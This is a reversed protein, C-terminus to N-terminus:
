TVAMVVLASCTSARRWRALTDDVLGDAALALFSLRVTARVAQDAKAAPSESRGEKMALLILKFFFFFFICLRIARSGNCSPISTVCSLATMLREPTGDARINATPGTVRGANQSIM